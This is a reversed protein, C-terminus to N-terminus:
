AIVAESTQRARNESALEPVGEALVSALLACFGVLKLAFNAAHAYEWQDRWRLWDAPVSTPTWERMVSNAPAVFVVWSILALALLVAGILSLRASAGRGRALYALVGAALVSGVEAVAGVTGFMVYLGPPENQVEVYLPAAWQLKPWLELAHCFSAGMSLAALLLAGFRWAQLRVLTSTM